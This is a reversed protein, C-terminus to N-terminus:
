PVETCYINIRKKWFSRLPIKNLSNTLLSICPPRLRLREDVGRLLSSTIRPNPRSMDRGICATPGTRSCGWKIWEATFHVRKDPIYHLTKRLCYNENLFDAEISSVWRDGTGRWAPNRHNKSSGGEGVRPGRWDTGDSQTVSYWITIYAERWLPKYTNISCRSHFPHWQPGPHISEFCNSKIWLCVQHDWCSTKLASNTSTFQTYIRWSMYKQAHEQFGHSKNCSATKANCSYERWQLFRGNHYAVLGKLRYFQCM